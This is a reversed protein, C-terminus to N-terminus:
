YQPLLGLTPSNCIFEQEKSLNLTHLTASHSILAKFV